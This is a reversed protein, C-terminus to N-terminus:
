AGPRAWALVSTMSLSSAVEDNFLTLGDSEHQVALVYLLPLYHEATPIALQADVGLNLYDALEAHAHSLILRNVLDRFRVAWEPQESSHFRFLQLNHVINGSGLILVGRERLPALKRAFEYHAVGNKEVDLSLQVVPIDADPYMVRLVSWAGHDLGRGHDVRVYGLMGAIERALAPNGPAPYVVEFLAKPFGYFDHITEPREVGTVYAHRTEWHASICLVADPRPLQEGLERWSDHYANREIANMPSGHGLFLAPMLSNIPM